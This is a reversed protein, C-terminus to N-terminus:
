GPQNVPLLAGTLLTLVFLAGFVFGAAIFASQLRTRGTQQNTRATPAEGLAEIYLEDTIRLPFPAELADAVDETIRELWYLGLLNDADRAAGVRQFTGKVQVHQVGARDETHLTLKILFRELLAPNTLTDAQASLLNSLPLYDTQLLGLRENALTISFNNAVLALTAADLVDAQPAPTTFAVTEVALPAPAAPEPTRLTVSTCGSLFIGFALLPLLVPALHGFLVRPM